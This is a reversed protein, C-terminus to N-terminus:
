WSVCCVKFLMEREPPFPLSANHTIVLTYKLGMWTDHKSLNTTTTTLLSVTSICNFILFLHIFCFPWAWVNLFPVQKSDLSLPGLTNAAASRYSHLRPLLWSPHFWAVSPITPQFPSPWWSPVVKQTLCRGSGGQSKICLLGERGCLDAKGAEAM